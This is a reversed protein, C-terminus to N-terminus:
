SERKEILIFNTVPADPSTIIGGAAALVIRIRSNGTGSIYVDGNPAIVPGMITSSLPRRAIAKDCSRQFTGCQLRRQEESKRRPRECVRGVRNNGRGAVLSGTSSATQSM